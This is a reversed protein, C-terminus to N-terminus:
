DVQVLGREYLTFFTPGVQDVINYDQHYLILCLTVLHLLHALQLHYIM